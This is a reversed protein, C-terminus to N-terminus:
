PGGRVPVLGLQRNYLALSRDIDSVMTGTYAMGTYAMGTYAMGTYAM